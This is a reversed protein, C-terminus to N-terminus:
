EHKDLYARLHEIALNVDKIANKLDKDEVDGDHLATLMDRAKEKAVHASAIMSDLEKKGSAHLKTALIKAREIQENIESHLKKLTKEAETKAKVAANKVDARTEKGSKPATLIGTVYGAAAALMAGIAFRKSEKNM